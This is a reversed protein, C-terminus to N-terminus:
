NIIEKLEAEKGDKLMKFIFDMKKKMDELENNSKVFTNYEKEIEERGTPRKCNSCIEENFGIPSNCFRCSKAEREDNGPLLGKYRALINPDTIQGKKIGELYFNDEQTMKSYTQLQKLSTWRAKHQVVQPSKGSLLDFTVGNRKLSYATVAKDIGLAKCALKLQKTVSFPTLQGTKNNNNSNLFFFAERNSKLPHEEYWKLVYPFSDFCQLIGTGEKGHESITIKAYNDFILVDKIKLYLLEQPRALSEVALAVYAQIRKDKDFYTLIKKYESFLLKDDRLKEKSKDQTSKLHRVPYPTITEDIRGKNDKEPFLYRWFYRIDRVFDSKSKSSKYQKHMQAMIFDIDERLCDKLDKATYTVILKFTNLLRLRRVYSLDKSDFMLFLREFYALNAPNQCYYKVKIKREKGRKTKIIQRESPRLALDKYTNVVREYKAKNNYIDNQAMNGQRRQENIFMTLCRM